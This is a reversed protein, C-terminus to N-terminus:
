WAFSVFSLITVVFLKWLTGMFFIMSSATSSEQKTGADSAIHEHM